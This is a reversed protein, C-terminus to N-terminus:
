FSGWVALGAGDRGAVFPAARVGEEHPSGKRSSTARELGRPMFLGEVLAGLGGIQGLGDAISLAVRLVVMGTSCDGDSCSGADRLSLWPGVVPYRLDELGPADFLYSSALAGGYWGAFVAAGTIAVTAGAGAPPYEVTQPTNPAGVGLEEGPAAERAGLVEGPAAEQATAARGSLCVSTGFAVSAIWAHKSRM